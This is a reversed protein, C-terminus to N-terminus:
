ISSNKFPAKANTPFERNLFKKKREYLVYLRSTFPVAPAMNQDVLWQDSKRYMKSWFHRHLIRLLKLGRQKCRIAPDVHTSLLLNHISFTVRRSMPTEPNPVEFISLLPLLFVITKKLVFELAWFFSKFNLGYHLPYEGRGESHMDRYWTLSKM